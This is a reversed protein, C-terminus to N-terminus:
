ETIMGDEDMDRLAESVLYNDDQKSFPRYFGSLIKDELSMPKSSWDSSM